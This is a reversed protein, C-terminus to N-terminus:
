AKWVLIQFYILKEKYKLVMRFMESNLTNATQKRYLPLGLREKKWSVWLKRPM